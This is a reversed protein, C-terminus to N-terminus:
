AQLRTLLSSIESVGIRRLILVIVDFRYVNFVCLCMFMITRNKGVLGGCNGNHPCLNAKTMFGVSKKVALTALWWSTLVAVGGAFPEFSTCGYLYLGQFLHPHQPPSASSVPDACSQTLLSIALICNIADRSPNFLEFAKQM